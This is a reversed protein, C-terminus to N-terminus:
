GGEAWKKDEGEADEVGDGAESQRGVDRAKEEGM